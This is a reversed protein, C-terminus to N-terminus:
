EAVLETNVENVPRLRLEESESRPYLNFIERMVDDVAEYSIAGTKDFRIDGAQDFLVTQPVSGKFYQGVENKDYSGKVPISDAAIPVFNAVRGYPAQLQSIVSSYEKCDSSDDVYFFLVIPRQQKLSTPFDVRPPVISGNGAYLAFINGDYRDDNRGALASPQWFTLLCVALLVACLLRRTPYWLNALALVSKDTRM